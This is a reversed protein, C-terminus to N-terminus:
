SSPPPGLAIVPSATPAKQGPQMLEGASFVAGGM